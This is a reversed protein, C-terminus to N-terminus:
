PEHVIVDEVDHRAKAEARALLYGRRSPYEVEPYPAREISWEIAFGADVLAREVVDRPYFVFDLDVAHGLLEDVHLSGEGIHFSLFVLGGPALVRRMESLAHALEPRDFHVIAYFATIGAWAGEEADLRLMSGTGFHIHPAAARAVEVMKESLDIGMADLGREVLARAIQGPGCGLDVVKGKGRLADAFVDLLARDLPKQGLEGYYRDAYDKSLRDYGEALKKEKDSM